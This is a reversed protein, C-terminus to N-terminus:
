TTAKLHVLFRNVNCIWLPLLLLASSCHTLIVKLFCRTLVFRMEPGPCSSFRSPTLCMDSEILRVSTWSSLFTWSGIQWKQADATKLCVCLFWHQITKTKFAISKHMCINYFLYRCLSKKFFPVSLCKHIIETLILLTSKNKTIENGFILKFDLCTYVSVLLDIIVHLAAIIVNQKQVDTSVWQCM